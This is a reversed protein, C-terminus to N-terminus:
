DYLPYSDHFIDVGNAYLDSQIIQLDNMSKLFKDVAARVEEPTVSLQDAFLYVPKKRSIPRDTKRGSNPRRGGTNPRSGGRKPTNTM